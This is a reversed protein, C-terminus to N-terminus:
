TERGLLYDVSCDFYKSLKILSEVTPVAKNNLWRYTLSSSVNLEKQLKYESKGNEKLCKRLSEGFPKVPKFVVNRPYDVLGLLYDASCNFYEVLAVIIETSPVHAENLLGSITIRSFGIKPALTTANLEHETMYEKLREVFISLNVM